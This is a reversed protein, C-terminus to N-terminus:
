SPRRTRWAGGPARSASKVSYPGPSKGVNWVATVTGDGAVALDPFESNTVEDAAPSVQVPSSWAGGAALYASTIVYHALTGGAAPVYTTWVATANGSGDVVVQQDFSTFSPDSM